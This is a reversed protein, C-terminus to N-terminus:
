PYACSVTVPAEYPPAKSCAGIAAFEKYGPTSEGRSVCTNFCSEQRPRPCANICAYLKVCDPNAACAKEEDCCAKDLAAQCRTDYDAPYVTLNCVGSGPATGSDAATSGGDSGSTSGDGIPRAGADSSTGGDTSGTNDGSSCGGGLLGLYLLPSMIRLVRHM